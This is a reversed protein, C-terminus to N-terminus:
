IAEQLLEEMELNLRMQEAEYVVFQWEQDHGVKTSQWIQNEMLLWLMSTKKKTQGIEEEAQQNAHLAFNLADDVSAKILHRTISKSQPKRHAEDMRAKRSPNQSFPNELFARNKPHSSSLALFSSSSQITAKQVIKKLILCYQKTSSRRHKM